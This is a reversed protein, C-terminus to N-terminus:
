QIQEFELVQGSKKMLDLQSMVSKLRDTDIPQNDSEISIIMKFVKIGKYDCLGEKSMGMNKDKHIM